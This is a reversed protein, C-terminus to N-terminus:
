LWIAKLIVLITNLSLNIIGLCISITCLLKVFKLNNQTELENLIKNVIGKQHLQTLKPFKKVKYSVQINDIATELICEDNKQDLIPYIIYPKDSPLLHSLSMDILFPVETETIVVVHTDIQGPFTASDYGVFHYDTANESNRFLSLQVEVIRSKIGISNLSAQMIDSAAICNQAFNITVQKQNLSEILKLIAHFEPTKKAYEVTSM